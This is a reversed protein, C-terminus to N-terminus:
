PNDSGAILNEHWGIFLQGDGSAEIERPLTYSRCLDVLTWDACPNHDTIGVEIEWYYEPRLRAKMRDSILVVGNEYALQFSMILQGSDPTNIWPTYFQGPPQTSDTVFAGGGFGYRNVGDDIEIRFMNAIDVEIHEPVALTVRVRPQQLNVEYIQAKSVDVKRTTRKTETEVCSVLLVIIVLFLVVQRTTHYM